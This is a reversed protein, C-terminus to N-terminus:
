AAKTLEKYELNESALLQILADRFLHTNKRNNFRFTM